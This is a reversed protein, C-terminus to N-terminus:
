VRELRTFLRTAYNDCEDDGNDAYKYNGSIDDDGGERQVWPVIPKSPVMRSFSWDQSMVIAVSM